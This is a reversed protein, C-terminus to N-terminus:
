PNKEKKLQQYARCAQQYKLKNPIQDKLGSGLQGWVEWDVIYNELDDPHVNQSSIVKGRVSIGAEHVTESRGSILPHWRCLEKKQSVLRYACTRPLWGFKPVLEATLILCWPAEKKRRPYASCRCSQRDLFRCAVNTFYVKGTKRNEFKEVCCRGCGDCLSEWEAKSMKDLTKKKWFPQELKNM